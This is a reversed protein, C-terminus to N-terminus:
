MRSCECSAVCHLAIPVMTGWTCDVSAEGIDIEEEESDDDGEGGSRAAMSELGDISFPSQLAALVSPSFPTTAPSGVSTGGSNARQLTPGSFSSRRSASRSRSRLSHEDGDGDGDGDDDTDSDSSSYAIGPSSDGSWQSTPTQPQSTSQEGGGQSQMQQHAAHTTAVRRACESLSRVRKFHIRAHNKVQLANRSGVYGSIAKWNGKGHIRQM